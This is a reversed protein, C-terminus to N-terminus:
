NHFTVPDIGSDNIAPVLDITQKADLYDEQLFHISAKLNIAEVIATERLIQSAKTKNEEFTQKTKTVELQSYKSYAQDIIEQTYRM